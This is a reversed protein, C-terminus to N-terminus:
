LVYKKIYEWEWKDLIPSVITKAFHDHLKDLLPTEMIEEISISVKYRKQKKVYNM